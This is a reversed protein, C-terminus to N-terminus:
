ESEALCLSLHKHYLSLCAGAPLRLTKWISQMHFSMRPLPFLMHLSMYGLILWVHFSQPESDLFKKKLSFNSAELNFGKEKDYMRRGWRERQLPLEPYLNLCLYGKNLETASPWRM